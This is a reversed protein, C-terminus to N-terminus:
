AGVTARGRATCAADPFPPMDLDGNERVFQWLRGLASAPERRANETPDCPSGAVLVSISRYLRRWAAGRAPAAATLADLLTRGIADAASPREVLAAVVAIDLSMREYLLRADDDLDSALVEFFPRNLATAPCYVLTDEFMISSSV